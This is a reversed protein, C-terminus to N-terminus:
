RFELLLPLHDSVEDTLVKFDSVQVDASVFIYDAIYDAYKKMDAYYRSRTTQVKYEAILDRMDSELLGISKTKPQLNFDGCLVKKGAFDKLFHELRKSQETRKPTDVKPGPLWLGHINGICYTEKSTQIKVFQFNGTVPEVEEKVSEYDQAYTHFGGSEIVRLTKRVFIAEGTRVDKSPAKDALRNGESALRGFMSFGSLIGRLEPALNAKAWVIEPRPKESFYIEQFCFVDTTEANKEVFEVLPKHLKGGWANLSILRM